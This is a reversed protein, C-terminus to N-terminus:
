SSGSTIFGSDYNERGATFGTVRRKRPMMIVVAVNHVLPTAPTLPSIDPVARNGREASRASPEEGGPELLRLLLAGTRYVARYYTGPKRNMPLNDRPQMPRGSPSFDGDRARREM